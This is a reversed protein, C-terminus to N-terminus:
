GERRGTFCHLCFTSCGGLIKCMGEVSLYGLSDVELLKKVHKAGRRAVLQNKSAIDIGWFCENTVPPSAVRFHIERPEAKKVLEVIKKSTTGRVISDDVLVVRKGKISSKVLSLKEAVAESRRSPEIFTRGVWPNRVLAPEIPIRSQRSFGVAASLGSDMIPIVIDADVPNEIACRMGMKERVNHVNQGFITSDPRAFYIYEFICQYPRKNVLKKYDFNDKTAIAVSGPEMEFRDGGDPFASDESSFLTTNGERRVWLPRYGHPDRFAVIKDEFLFLLSYAGEIKFIVQAMKYPDWENPPSKFHEVLEHLFIETDSGALLIKGKRELQDRLEYPNELNGNHAISVKSNMYELELPQANIADAGGATSYRVHGIGLEAKLNSIESIKLVERVLGAGKITTIKGNSISLGASEQGRHQLAFLGRRIEVAVNSSIGGYLGCKERM